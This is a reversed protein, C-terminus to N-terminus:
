PGVLDPILHAADPTGWGSAADWCAVASFGTVGGFSNNGLTIDHFDAAYQIPNTGIMYLKPNLFGLPGKGKNFAYNNALAALAAWQPTAASTGGILAWGPSV